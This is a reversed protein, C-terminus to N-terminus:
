NLSIYVTLSLLMGSHCETGLVLVLLNVIGQSDMKKRSSDTPKARGKKQASSQESFILM